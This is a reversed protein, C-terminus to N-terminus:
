LAMWNLLDILTCDRHIQRLNAKLIRTFTGAFRMVEVFSIKHYVVLRSMEVKVGFTELIVLSTLVRHSVAINGRFKGVSNWLKRLWSCVTFFDIFCHRFKTTCRLKHLRFKGRKERDTGCAWVIENVVLNWSNQYSSCDDFVTQRQYPSTRARLPKGWPMETLWLERKSPIAMNQHSFDESSNKSRPLWTAM